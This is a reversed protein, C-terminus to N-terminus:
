NASNEAAIGLGQESAIAANLAQEYLYVDKYYQKIWEQAAGM